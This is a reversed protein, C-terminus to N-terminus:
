GVVTEALPHPDMPGKAVLSPEVSFKRRHQRRTEGSHLSCSLLCLSLRQHSIFLAQHYTKRGAPRGSWDALRNSQSSRVAVAKDLQAMELDLLSTGVRVAPLRSFSRRREANFLTGTRATAVCARCSYLAQMRRAPKRLVLLGPLTSLVADKPM